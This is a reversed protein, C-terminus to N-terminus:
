IEKGTVRSSAAEANALEGDLLARVVAAAEGVACAVTESLGISEETTEPECGIVFTRPLSGGLAEVSALVAAPHLSHADVGGAPAVHERGIELVDVRGPHGNGPLADILILADCGDLLDYALHVGRIGYDVIRVHAPMPERQLAKAVECGFGDDSLFINGIGAILVRESM